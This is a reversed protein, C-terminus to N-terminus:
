NTGYEQRDVTATGLIEEVLDFGRRAVINDIEIVPEAAALEIVALIQRFTVGRLHLEFGELDRWDEIWTLSSADETGRLLRTAICGPEARVPGVLSQLVLAAEDWASPNFSMHLRLTLM